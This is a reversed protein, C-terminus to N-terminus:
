EYSLVSKLNKALEPRAAIIQELQKLCKYKKNRVVQENEYATAVLIEKMPLEDFYFALLIKKCTEGLNHVLQMLANKMERHMIYQSVDVDTDSQQRDFKEDRLKSRGRKKLENLWINRTLAYLFTSVSSEGRFKNKKVLEIFVLILEQFIDQADEDNGNNQKIYAVTINFQTHYLFRIADDPSADSRLIQLLAADTFTRRIEM